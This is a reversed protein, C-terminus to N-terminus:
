TREEEAAWPREILDDGLPLVSEVVDDVTLGAEVAPTIGALYAAAGGGFASAGLLIRTGADYALWTRMGGVRGRLVLADPREEGVSGAVLRRDGGLDLDVTVPCVRDWEVRDGGLAAVAVRAQAAARQPTRYGTITDGVAAITDAALLSPAVVISGGDDLALGARAPALAATRPRRDTSLRSALPGDGTELGRRSLEAVVQRAVSSHLEGTLGDLDAVVPLAGERLLRAVAHLAPTGGGDVGIRDGPRFEPETASGVRDAGTAVVCSRFDLMASPVDDRVVRLLRPGAFVADGRIVEVGLSELAAVDVAAARRWSAVAGGLPGDTVITVSRGGDLGAVAAALGGPGAGLVVLDRAEPMEGVVM